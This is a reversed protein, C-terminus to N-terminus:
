SEDARAEAEDANPGCYRSKNPDNRFTQLEFKMALRIVPMIRIMMDSLLTEINGRLSECDSWDCVDMLWGFHTGGGARAIGVHNNSRDAAGGGGPCDVACDMAVEPEM